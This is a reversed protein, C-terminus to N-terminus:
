EEQNKLKKDLNKQEEQEDEKVLWVKQEQIHTKPWIIRM